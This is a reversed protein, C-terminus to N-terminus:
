SHLEKFTLLTALTWPELWLTRILDGYVLLKLLSIQKLQFSRQSLAPRLWRNAYTPASLIFGSKLYTRMQQQKSPQLESHQNENKTHAIKEIHKELAQIQSQHFCSHSREHVRFAFDLRHNWFEDLLLWNRKFSSKRLSLLEDLKVHILSSFRSYNM